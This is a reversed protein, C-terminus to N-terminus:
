ERLQNAAKAVRMRGGVDSQAGRAVGDLYEVVEPVSANVDADEAGWWRDCPQVDMRQGGLGEVGCQRRSMREAVLIPHPECEPRDDVGCWRNLDDEAPVM